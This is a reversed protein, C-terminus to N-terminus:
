SKSLAIVECGYLHAICVECGYLSLDLMSLLEPKHEPSKTSLAIIKPNQQNISLKVEFKYDLINLSENFFDLFNIWDM